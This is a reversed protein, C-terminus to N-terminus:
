EARARPHPAHVCLASPPATPQWAHYRSSSLRLVRLAAALPMAKRAREIASLLRRKNAADPVRARELAFGSIRLLTLVLRLIASLLAVRRELKAIRAHHAPEWGPEDLTVVARTGRRIWSLATRRPIALEPFLDPNGTRVIQERIRHDYVRPYRQAM